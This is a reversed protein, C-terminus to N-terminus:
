TGDTDSGVLRIRMVVKQLRGWLLDGKWPVLSVHLVRVIGRGSRERWRSPEVTKEM